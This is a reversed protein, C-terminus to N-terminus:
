QFWENALPAVVILPYVVVTKYHQLCAPQTHNTSMEIEKECIEEFAANIACM